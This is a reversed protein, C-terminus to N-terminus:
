DFDATKNALCSEVYIILGNGDGRHCLEKETPKLGGSIKVIGIM